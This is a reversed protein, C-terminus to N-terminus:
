RSLCLPNMPLPLRQLLRLTSALSNHTEQSRTLLHLYTSSCLDRQRARILSFLAPSLLPSISHTTSLPNLSPMNSLTHSLLSAENEHLMITMHIDCDFGVELMVLCIQKICDSIASLGGSVTVVRESSNPLAEGSVQINAGSVQFPFTNKYCFHKM